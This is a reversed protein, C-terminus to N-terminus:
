IAENEPPERESNSSWVFDTRGPDLLVRAAQLWGIAERIQVVLVRAEALTVDESKIDEVLQRALDCIGAARLGAVEAM